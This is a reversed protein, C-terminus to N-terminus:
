PIKFYLLSPTLAMFVVLVTIERDKSVDGRLSVHYWLFKACCKPVCNLKDLVRRMSIIFAWNAFKNLMVQVNFNDSCSAMQKAEIIGRQWPKTSIMHSRLKRLLKLLWVFSRSQDWVQNFEFAVQILSWPPILRTLCSSICPYLWIRWCDGHIRSGWAMPHSPLFRFHSPFYGLLRTRESRQYRQRDAQIRDSMPLNNRTFRQKM